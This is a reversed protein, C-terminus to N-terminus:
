VAAVRALLSAEPATLGYLAAIPVATAVRVAPEAVMEGAARLGERLDVPVASWRPLRVRRLYQAQFRLFGGAMRTAYAGVFLAAMGGLLVARLACVDWGEGDLTPESVVFYLNHHPYLRGDERVVHPRGKIDPILLKERGALAPYIRDITRYWGRGTRDRQAVHRQRLTAEHVRLYAALKPFRTLDVLSGDEEFPNLVSRGTWVVEGGRIDATMALPLKRSPEVDLSVDPGIFVKDAGTAVGIGVRCGSEELTPFQKELRHVLTLTDVTPSGDGGGVTQSAGEFLWPRQGHVLGVVDRVSSDPALHPQNLVRALEVLGAADAPARPAVRTPAAPARAIVTVAPYALVAQEFASAGDLGVHFRLHFGDSVLARLPGGYRNKTWRDACVFGLTGGASLLRLSCEIFPVYLDARDYITSFRRRYERLRDAPILEQRVYPPNGVVFDFPQEFATLLFDGELLWADLTQARQAQNLGAQQLLVELEARTHHLSPGHLEVARVAAQLQILTGDRDARWVKLLREVVPVLFSGEGCAPELLRLTHLPRDATYGVLDLVFAAVQPRTFIAGRAVGTEANEPAGVPRIPLVAGESPSLVNLLHLQM